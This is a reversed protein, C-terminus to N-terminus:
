AGKYHRVAYKEHFDKLFLERHPQEIVAWTGAKFTIICIKEKRKYNIVEDLDLMTDGYLGFDSM